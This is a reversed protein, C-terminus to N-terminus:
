LVIHMGGLNPNHSTKFKAYVLSMFRRIMLSLYSWTRYVKVPLNKSFFKSLVKTPMVRKRQRPINLNGRSKVLVVRIKAEIEYLM